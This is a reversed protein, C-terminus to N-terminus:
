CLISLLQLIRFQILWNVRFPLNLYLFIYSLKLAYAEIESFITYLTSIRGATRYISHIAEILCSARYISLRLHTCIIKDDVILLTRFRM